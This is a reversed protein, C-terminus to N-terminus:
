SGICLAGWSRELKGFVWFYGVYAPAVSPLQLPQRTVITGRLLQLSSRPRRWRAPPRLEPASDPYGLKVHPRCRPWPGDWGVVSMRTSSPGRGQCLAPGDYPCSAGKWMPVTHELAGGSGLLGRARQVLEADPEVVLPVGCAGLRTKPLRVGRVNSCERKRQRQCRLRQSDRLAAPAAPRPPRRRAARRPPRSRTCGAGGAGRLPGHGRWTRPSGSWPSHSCVCRGAETAKCASVGRGM